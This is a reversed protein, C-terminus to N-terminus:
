WSIKGHNAATRAFVEAHRQADPGTSRFRFQAASAPGRTTIQFVIRRRSSLREAIQLRSM